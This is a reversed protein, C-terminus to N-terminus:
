RNRFNLIKFGLLCAHSLVCLVASNPPCIASAYIPHLCSDSSHRRCCLSITQEETLAELVTTPMFKGRWPFPLQIVGNKGRVMLVSLSCHAACCGCHLSRSFVERVQLLFCVDLDLLCLSSGSFDVFAAWCWSM